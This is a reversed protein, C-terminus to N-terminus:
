LREEEARAALSLALADGVEFHEALLRRTAAQDQHAVAEVLAQLRPLYGEPVAWLREVLGLVTRYTREFTNFLWIYVLSHAATVLARYFELDAVILDSVKGQCGELRALLGRLRAVEEEDRRAAALAGAEVLVLRRLGLLDQLVARVEEPRGAEVLFLPLLSIEGVERFDRVRVGDGQRVQLLHQGELARIAERLTNRNTRFRQALDAEAPLRAGPQVVGSLIERRITRVIQESISTKEISSSM